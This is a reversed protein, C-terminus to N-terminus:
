RAPAPTRVGAAASAAQPRGERPRTSAAARNRAAARASWPSSAPSRRPPVASGRSVGTRSGAQWGTVRNSRGYGGDWGAAAENSSVETLRFMLPPSRVLERACGFPPQLPVLTVSRSTMALAYSTRSNWSVPPGSQSSTSMLRARGLVSEPKKPRQPVWRWALHSVSRSALGWTEWRRGSQRALRSVSPSVLAPRRSGERGTILLHESM